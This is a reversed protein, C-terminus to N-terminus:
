IGKDKFFTKLIDKNTMDKYQQLVSLREKVDDYLSDPILDTQNNMGNDQGSKITANGSKSIERRVIDSRTAARRSKKARNALEKQYMTIQSVNRSERYGKERILKQAEKRTKLSHSKLGYEGSATLLGIYKGNIDYATVTSIDSPDVMITISKGYYEGSISLEDGRYRSGMYNIYPRRGNTISGCVKRTMYLFDMKNIEERVSEDAIVPYMGSEFIRRKMVNMPSEKNLSGHPTVNYEAIIAELLECIDDYTVDYKIAKKEANRRRIDKTNSGTTSPLRHFGREELTKFFREVIGRSEPTAVAGFHLSCKIRNVLANVTAQSLHAKANDLMIEDILPYKIEEIEFSYFGGSDPYSLGPITFDKKERPSIADKIARIVDYSNYNFEQSVSYGLICRTAVDIVAIIWARTAIRKDITGDENEIKVIYELDIIHGDVQVQAFPMVSDHYLKKGFGTNMLIQRNNQSERKAQDKLQKKLQQVYRTLSMYGKSDTSFPYEYNEIGLETCKTLFREHLNRVSIAPEISYKRNGFYVNRIYARLEPYQDLLQEFRGNRSVTISAEKEIRKKVNPIIAEYGRYQGDDNMEFCKNVTKSINSLSLGTNRSIELVPIGETYLDVALKKKKFQEQKEKPIVEIPIDTWSNRIAPM